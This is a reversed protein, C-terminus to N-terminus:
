EEFWIAHHRMDLYPNNVDDFFFYIYAIGHGTKFLTLLKCHKYNTLHEKPKFYAVLGWEANFTKLDSQRISHVSIGDAGEENSAANIIRTFSFGQPVEDIIKNLSSPIIDYRIAMNEKKSRIAHRYPIEESIIPKYTKYTSELIKVTSISASDLLAQFSLTKEIQGYTTLHFLMLFLLVSKKM